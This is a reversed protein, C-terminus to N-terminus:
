CSVHLRPLINLVINLMEILVTLALKKNDNRTESGQSGLVQIQKNSNTPYGASPVAQHRFCHAPM